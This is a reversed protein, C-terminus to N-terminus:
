RAPLNSCAASLTLFEGDVWGEQDQYTTLWWAADSNRAYLNITTAYPIILLTDADRSPETRLRLNYNVSALCVEVPRPTPPVATVAERTTEGAQAAESPLM